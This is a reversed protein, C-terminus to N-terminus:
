KTTLTGTASISGVEFGALRVRNVRQHMLRGCDPCIATVKGSTATLPTYDFLGGAPRQVARCPLCFIEGPKCPHKAEQRRNAHFTNLDTGHFLLPRAPGIPQLGQRMWLRVTNRHCEYLEAAEAITYSRHAKALRMKASPKAMMRFGVRGGLDLATALRYADRGM